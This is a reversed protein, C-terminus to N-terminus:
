STAIFFYGIPQKWKDHLGRKIIVMVSKALKYTKFSNTNYFGIIEDKKFDYFLFSKLSMKDVYLMCENSKPKMLNVKVALAKFLFENLGPNIEWNKTPSLLLELLHYVYQRRLFDIYM